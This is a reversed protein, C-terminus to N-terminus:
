TLSWQRLLNHYCGVLTTRASADASTTNLKQIATDLDYLISRQGDDRVLSEIWFFSALRMGRTVPTVQHLSTAPYLIMDGAPLKVEQLSFSDMIQLVGGDYDAQDNLFLTASIDTRLKQGTRPDIRISGDVHPGFLSGEQYRNFLPPYVKNPLAASIFLPNRELAGLVIAQARAAVGSAEDIQQNRKVPAGQYGATARGDIWPDGAEDLMHRLDALLAADLVNPVTIMM